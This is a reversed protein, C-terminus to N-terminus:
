ILYINLVNIEIATSLKTYLAAPLSYYSRRKEKLRVNGSDNKM